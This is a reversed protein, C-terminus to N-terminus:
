SFENRVLISFLDAMVSSGFATLLPIFIPKLSKIVLFLQDAM